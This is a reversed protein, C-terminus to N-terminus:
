PNITEVLELAHQQHATPITDLTITAGTEAHQHTNRVITGLSELLTKFSHVIESSDTTHTAAKRDAADSREAPAVPDREDSSLPDHDRYTLTAWARELHWRVYYALLCIFLHTTTRDAK